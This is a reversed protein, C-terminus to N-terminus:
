VLSYFKYKDPISNFKDNTGDIVNGLAHVAIHTPKDKEAGLLIYESRIGLATLVTHIFLAFDDCDGFRKSIIIAPSIVVEDADDELYDFHTRVYHWIKKLQCVGCDQKFNQHIWKVFIPEALAQRELDRM